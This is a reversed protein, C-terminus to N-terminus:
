EISNDDAAVIAEIRSRFRKSSKEVTNRALFGMAKGPLQSALNGEGMGGMLYPLLFDGWLWKDQEWLRILLDELLMM